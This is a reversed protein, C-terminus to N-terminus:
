SHVVSPSRLRCATAHVALGLRLRANSIQVGSALIQVLVQMHVGQDAGLATRWDQISAGARSQRLAHFGHESELMAVFHAQAKGGEKFAAKLWALGIKSEVGAERAKPPLPTGVRM